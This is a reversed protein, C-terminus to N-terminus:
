QTTIELRARPLLPAAADRLGGPDDGITWIRERIVDDAEPDVTGYPGGDVCRARERSASGGGNLRRSGAVRQARRKRFNVVEVIDVVDAMDALHVMAVRDVLDVWVHVMHVDAVTFPSGTAVTTPPDTSTPVAM